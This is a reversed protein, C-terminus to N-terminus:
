ICAANKFMFNDKLFKVFKNVGSKQSRCVSLCVSLYISLYIDFILTLLIVSIHQVKGLLIWVCKIQKMMASQLFRCRKKLIILKLKKCKISSLENLHADHSM